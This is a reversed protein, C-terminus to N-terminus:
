CGTCIRSARPPTKIVTSGAGTFASDFCACFTTDRDRVLFRFREGREGLGMLLNRV